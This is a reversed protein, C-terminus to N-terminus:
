ICLYRWFCVLHCILCFLQLDSALPWCLDVIISYHYLFVYLLLFLYLSSDVSSGLTFGFPWLTNHHCIFIAFVVAISKFRKSLPVPVSQRWSLSQCSQHHSRFIAAVNRQASLCFDMHHGFHDKAIQNSWKNNSCTTQQEVLIHM